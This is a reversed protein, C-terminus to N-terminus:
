FYDNRLVCLRRRIPLHKGIAAAIKRKRGRAPFSCSIIENKPFNGRTPRCVALFNGGKEVGGGGGTKKDISLEACTILKQLYAGASSDTRAIEINNM